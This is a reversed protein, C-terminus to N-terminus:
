RRRVHKSCHKCKQVDTPGESLRSKYASIGCPSYLFSVDYWSGQRFLHRRRDKRAAKTPTGHDYYKLERWKSM